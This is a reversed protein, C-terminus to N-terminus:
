NGKFITKKIKIIIGALVLVILGATVINFKRFYSVPPARPEKAIHKDDQSKATINADVLGYQKTVEPVIEAQVGIGKNKQNRSLVASASVNAQLSSNGPMPLNDEPSWLDPMRAENEQLRLQAREAIFSGPHRKILGRLEGVAWLPHIFGASYAVQDVAVEQYRKIDDLTKELFRKEKEHETNEIQEALQDTDYELVKKSWEVASTFERMTTYHDCISSMAKYVLPEEASYSDIIQKYLEIAKGFDPKEGKSLDYSSGYLQGMRYLIHLRQKEDPEAQLASEYYGLAKLQSAGPGLTYMNDHKHAQGILEAVTDASEAKATVGTLLVIALL